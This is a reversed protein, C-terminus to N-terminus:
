APKLSKRYETPSLGAHKKFAANFTTKSNFGSDFAIALVKLHNFRDSALRRMVEEVRHYSIFEYFSQNMKENLLQSLKHTSTEMMDALEQLSLDNKLYIKEQNVLFMLRGSLAEATEESIGSRAYKVSEEKVTSEQPLQTKQIEYPNKEDTISEATLPIRKQRLDYYSIFFIFIPFAVLDMVYFVRSDIFLSLFSSLLILSSLILLFKLWKLRISDVSSYLQKIRINFKYLRYFSMFLFICSSFLAVFVTAFFLNCPYAAQLIDGERNFVKSLFDVKGEATKFYVPIWLFYLVLLPLFYFLHHKRFSFSRNTLGCVYFYILPALCYALPDALGTWHPIQYIYRSYFFLEDTELLAFALLFLVLFKQAGPNESKTTLILTSFFVCQIVSVIKLVVWFDIVPESIM